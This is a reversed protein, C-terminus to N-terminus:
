DPERLLERLLEIFEPVLPNENFQRSCCYLHSREGLPEHGLGPMDNFFGFRLDSVALARSFRMQACMSEVNPLFRVAHPQPDINELEQRSLVINETYSRDWGPVMLYPLEARKQRSLPDLEPGIVDAPGFLCLEEEAVPEAVIDKHTPLHGESFLALEVEGATLDDLLEVNNRMRLSLRVEPHHARFARVVDALRGFPNLWESCGVILSHALTDYHREIQQTVLGLRQYASQFLVYYYRGIATLRIPQTSREFLAAGLDQELQAIYKSVTQQTYFLQNAAETFSSTQAVTLFCQIYNTNM